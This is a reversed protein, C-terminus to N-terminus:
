ILKEPHAAYFDKQFQEFEDIHNKLLNMKKINLDNDSIYHEFFCQWNRYIEYQVCDPIIMCIKIMIELDETTIIRYIDDAWETTAPEFEIEKVIIEKPELWIIEKPDTKKKQIIFTFGPELEKIFPIDIGNNHWTFYAM